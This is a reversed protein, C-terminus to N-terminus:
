FLRSLWTWSRRAPVPEAPPRLAEIREALRQVFAEDGARERPPDLPEGIRVRILRGRWLERTDAVGVPVVPSDGLRALAAVGRRLPRVHAEADSPHTLDEPFIGIAAGRRLQEAAARLAARADRGEADLPLVIDAWRLVPRRWAVDTTRAREALLRLGGVAPLFAALLFAELWAPHNAAVIYRGRPLHELGRIEVRFLGRVLWRLVARALRPLLGLRATPVMEPAGTGTGTSPGADLTSAM